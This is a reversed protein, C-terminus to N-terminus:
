EEGHICQEASEQLEYLVWQYSPSRIVPIIGGLYQQKAGVWSIAVLGCLESQQRYTSRIGRPRRNIFITYAHAESRQMEGPGLRCSGQGEHLMVQVPRSSCDGM